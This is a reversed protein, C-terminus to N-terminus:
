KGVSAIPTRLHRSALPVCPEQETESHGVAKMLGAVEDPVEYVLANFYVVDSQRLKPTDLAQLLGRTFAGHGM